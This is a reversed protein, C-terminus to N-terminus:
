DLAINAGKVIESWKRKDKVLFNLFDQQTGGVVELGDNTFRQQIEPLQLVKAVEKQVRDIAAPPTGKPACIASWGVPAFGPVGAESVTPIEPFAKLRNTGAIGLARLKGAKVHAMSSVPQDFILSVQGSVVDTMAQGTGKYPVHVIDVHAMAKFSEGALHGATGNGSSAFNITGPHAKAYAVFENVDKVPVATNVLMMLPANVLHIVPIIDNDADYPLNKTMYPQIALTGTACVMMTHGDRPARLMGDVAINGSAGPRNEVIVQQGLAESLRPGIVRAIIDNSGGPAFGVLLRFPKSPFAEASQASAAGPLVALALSAAVACQIRKFFVKRTHLM